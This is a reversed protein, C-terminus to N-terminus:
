KKMLYAIVRQRDAGVQRIAELVKERPVNAAKMLYYIEHDQTSVHESDRGKKQTDDAVPEEM